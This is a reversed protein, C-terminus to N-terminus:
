SQCNRDRARTGTHTPTLEQIGRTKMLRGAVSCTEKEPDTKHAKSM